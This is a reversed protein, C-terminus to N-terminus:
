SKVAQAAVNLHIGRGKAFEFIQHLTSIAEKTKDSGKEKLKEILQTIDSQGIKTVARNGFFPNLELDIFRELEMSTNDSLLPLQISKFAGTLEHFTVPKYSVVKYIGIAACTHSVAHLIDIKWFPIDWQHLYPINTTIWLTFCGVIIFIRSVPYHRILVLLLGAALGAIIFHSPLVFHLGLIGIGAGLAVDTYKSGLSYDTLGLLMFYMMSLDFTHWFPSHIWHWGASGVGLFVTIIGMYPSRRFIFLGFLIFVLNSVSSIPELM